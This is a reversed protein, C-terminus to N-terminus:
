SKEASLLTSIARVSLGCVSYDACLYDLTQQM